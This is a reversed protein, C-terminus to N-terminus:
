EQDAERFRSALRMRNMRLRRELSRDRLSQMWARGIGQEPTFFLDSATVRGLASPGSDTGLLWAASFSALQEAPIDDISLFPHVILIRERDPARQAMREALFRAPAHQRHWSTSVLARRLNEDPPLVPDDEYPPDSACDTILRIHLPRHRRLSEIFRSIATIYADYARRFRENDGSLYSNYFLAYLDLDADIV